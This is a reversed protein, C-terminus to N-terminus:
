LSYNHLDPALEMFGRKGFIPKEWQLKIISIGTKKVESLGLSANLFWFGLGDSTPKDGIQCWAM